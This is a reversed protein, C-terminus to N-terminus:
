DISFPKTSEGERLTVDLQIKRDELKDGAIYRMILHVCENALQEIPQVVTTVSPYILNSVYTGDYAVVKFEKPYKRGMQVATKIILLVLEDTAFFGDVDPYNSVISKAIKENYEYGFKNWETVFNHCLVGSERLRQEFVKHRENFPSNMNKQGMCQLVNKCGAKILAEAALIGGKEHNGTVCPIDHGLDRDLAVIPRNTSRYLETDLTHACFILGDVRQQKLMELYKKEYNQEKWTNCVMMQYGYNCLAVETANLFESFFPHSMEPVIVGVIGSRRHYLNKAMENPTYNLEKIAQLVRERTSDKVYGTENLVRSVTAVGVKAHKAVDQITAM